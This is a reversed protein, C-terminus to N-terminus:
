PTTPIDTKRLYITEALPEPFTASIDLNYETRDSAGSSFWIRGEVQEAMIPPTYPGECGPSAAVGFLYWGDPLDIYPDPEPEYDAKRAV